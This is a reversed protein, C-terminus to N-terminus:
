FLTKQKKKDEIEDLKVLQNDIREESFEYKLLINKIKNKDIKPFEIEVKNDINPNEIENYIEKWDFDATYKDSKNLEEFIKEKTKHEKVFKLSKKPGLGKVGGPNYDTGCLIGLCILQEQNIELEKLVEHLEIIQPFVERYGSPTKRKRALSLNQILLPTKFMLCDYDQSAAAYVLKEKAMYSAQAEGEGPAQVIAIGMASILEKSEKIKQEDLYVDSRAYKGMAEIDEREMAEKYKQRAEDKAEMRLEKTKNKLKPAEGDFVYVLKVGELILNMNRYFLGSLHSTVNGRSDKLPTGDPQRITTLFQYIANFADVAITKGKLDSFQIEKKTIIEGIQLGVKFKRKGKKPFNLPWFIKLKRSIL